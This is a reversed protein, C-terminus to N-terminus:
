RIKFKYVFRMVILQKILSIILLLRKIFYMSFIYTHTFTFYKFYRISNKSRLYTCM